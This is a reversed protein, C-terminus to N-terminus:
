RCELLREANGQLVLNAHEELLIGHEVGQRIRAIGIEQNSGLLPWDTGFLVREPGLRRVAETVTETPQWSTDVWVNPLDAAIDLATFPDHFNMHALVFTTGPFDKFWGKFNRVDGLKADQYSLRSYICGTHVIVPIGLDSATRLLAAYRPSDAGEADASAHIKLLRAGRKVYERLKASPDGGLIRAINVAPILSPNKECEELVFENSSYPPHAIVVTRSVGSKKMSDRLDKASSELLIGPLPVLLSMEDITRRVVSPLHRMFTQTRHLSSAVPRYTARAENRIKELVPAKEFIGSLRDPFLHAHFDIPRPALAM